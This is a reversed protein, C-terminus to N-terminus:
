FFQVKLFGIAMFSYFLIVPIKYHKNLFYNKLINLKTLSALALLLSFIIQLVVSLTDLDAQIVNNNSLKVALNGAGAIFALVSIVLNFIIM